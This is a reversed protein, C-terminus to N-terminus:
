RTAIQNALNITEENSTFENPFDMSSSCYATAIKNDGMFKDLEETSQITVAVGDDGVIVVRDNQITLMYMETRWIQQRKPQASAVRSPLPRDTEFSGGTPL